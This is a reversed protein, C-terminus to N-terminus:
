AQLVGVEHLQFSGGIASVVARPANPSIQHGSARGSLQLVAEIVRILGTTSIPSGCTAGGSPNVPLASERRFHGDRMMAGADGSGSLGLAEISLLELIGFSVYVEALGIQTAPDTVGAVAYARRGAEALDSGDLYSNAGPVMRTGMNRGNAISGFGVAAVGREGPPGVVVAAAGSSRPSGDMRKVPWSIVPSALVEELTVAQRLQAYQNLVGNARNKVIVEAMAAEDLDHRHMYASMQVAATTIATRVVQRETFPDHLQGIAGALNPVEDALDAGLVLVRKARGAAIYACALRFATLGSAALVHVRGLFRATGPLGALAWFYPEDVGLVTVPALALLVGDIDRPEVGADAIAAQAVRGLLDAYTFNPQRTRIPLQATGLVTAIRKGIV